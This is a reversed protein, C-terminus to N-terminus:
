NRERVIITTFYGANDPMTDLERFIGEDEMGCNRIMIAEADTNRLEEKLAKLQRGVKMYVYTGQRSAQADSASHIAQSPDPAQADSASHMTQSPAAEQTDASMKELHHVEHAAPIIHLQEDWEVLPINLRAAAACFSPVGSVTITPYGEHELIKRIYSFSSYISPDGLILFAVDKGEDLYRSIKQVTRRHETDQLERDYVMPVRISLIEKRAIEPVAQRAIRFAMSEGPVNGSHVIVDAEKLVKVAKITLLEPDGPGVGVGYANGRM